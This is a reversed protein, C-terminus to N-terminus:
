NPTNTERWTGPKIFINNTGPVAPIMRDAATLISSGGAKQINGNAIVQCNIHGGGQQNFTGTEAYVLGSITGHHNVNVSINGDRSVLAFGSDPAIINTNASVSIDGTAIIQCNYSGNTLAVNGNVWLIAGNAPAPPDTQDGTLVIGSALAQTYWPTLDISPIVVTPVVDVTHTGLVSGPTPLNLVPATVNIYENKNMPTSISVSSSVDIMHGAAGLLATGQINLIGNSHIALPTGNHNIVDTNGTITLSGGAMIAYGFATTDFPFQQVEWCISKVYGLGPSATATAKVYVRFNADISDQVDVTMGNISLGTIISTASSIPWSQKQIWGIGRQLGSEAALFAKEDRFSEFEHNASSAVVQLYGLSAILLIAAFAVAGVLASGSSDTLPGTFPGSRLKPM